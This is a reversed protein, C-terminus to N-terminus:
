DAHAGSAKVVAAWLAVEDRLFRAADEPMLGVPEAGMDTLRQRIDPSRAAKVAAEALKQVIERPTAAPAHLTYWVNVVMDVGSERMTPVQPFLPTREVTTSALARLRGAKVFENVSPVNAISVSTEGGVLATLSPSSGKYAVMLLRTGTRLKFLEGSLHQTTGTGGYSYNLAGPRARALAILDKVSRVPLSPHVVLLNPTQSFVTIATLDRTTDFPLKKYLSMNIAVPPTQMLLTYGDPPSKVVYEMAINTGAGPRSEVLVQQGLSEVLKPTLVRAMIDIGGGPAFGSVIRIPKVPYTQALACGACLWGAAICSLSRGM